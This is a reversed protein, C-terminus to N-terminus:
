GNNEDGKMSKYAAMGATLLGAVPAVAYGLLMGNGTDLFNEPNPAMLPIGVQEPKPAQAKQQKLQANIKDYPVPSVYFTSTGGNEKDGYVFGNIEKARDYAQQRLASKGGFTVAQQPCADVCAPKKGDRVLDICLDCKYMVGGGLYGPALKMYLGVGAQRQPIGWPCVDRCKAGGLCYNTDIVVAGEKTQNQVGFPCLSACPPNDCHMCRRQLFLDHDRGDHEVKVKQVYTWNYPTLKDTVQRKKSWDENKGTPWNLPIPQIPEPFKQQNKTRCATVCLPTDSNPCGDCKTLDILTAVQEGSAQEAAHASKTSGGLVTTATVGVMTRRLFERRNIKGM